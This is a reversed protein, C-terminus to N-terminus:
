RSATGASGPDLGVSRLLSSKFDANLVGSVAQRNNRDAIADFQQNFHRLMFKDQLWKTEWANTLFWFMAQSTHNDNWEVDGFKQVMKALIAKLHKIVEGDFTPKKGDFKSMYFNQWCDKAVKLNPENKVPQPEIDALAVKLLKDFARELKLRDPSKSKQAERM